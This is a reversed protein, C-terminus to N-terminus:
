CFSSHGGKTMHHQGKDSYLIQNASKGKKSGSGVNQNRENLKRTNKYDLSQYSEMDEGANNFGRQRAATSNARRM